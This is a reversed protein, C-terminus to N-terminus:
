RVSSDEIRAGRIPHSHGDSKAIDERVFVDPDVIGNDELPEGIEAVELLEDTLDAAPKGGVLLSWSGRDRRHNSRGLVESMARPRDPFHNMSGPM